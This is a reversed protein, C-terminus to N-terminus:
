EFKLDIHDHGQAINCIIDFLSEGRGQEVEKLDSEVDQVNTPHCTKIKNHLYNITEEQGLDMRSKGSNIWKIRIEEGYKHVGFGGRLVDNFADLNRGIKWDLGKTLKDEVEDYFGNLTNFNNGDIIIENIM